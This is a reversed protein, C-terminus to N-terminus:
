VAGHNATIKHSVHAAATTTTGHVFFTLFRLFCFHFYWAAATSGGQHLCTHATGTGGDSWKVFVGEWM